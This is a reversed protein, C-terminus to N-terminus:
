KEEKDLLSIEFLKMEKLATNIKTKKKMREVAGSLYDYIPALEKKVDANEKKDMQEKFEQKMSEMFKLLIEHANTLNKEDRLWSLPVWKKEIAKDIVSSLAGDFHMTTIETYIEEGTKIHENM